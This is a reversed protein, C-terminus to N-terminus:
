GAFPTLRGGASVGPQTPVRSSGRLGTNSRRDDSSVGTPKHNLMRSRHGSLPSGVPLLWTAVGCMLPSPQLPRHVLGGDRM